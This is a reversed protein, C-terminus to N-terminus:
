CTYSPRGSTYVHIHLNEVKKKKLHHSIHKLTKKKILPVNLVIKCKKLSANQM